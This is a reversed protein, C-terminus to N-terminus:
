PTLRGTQLLVLASFTRAWFNAKQDAPYKFFDISWRHSPDIYLDRLVNAIHKPPWGADILLDRVLRLMNKPQLALPNPSGLVQRVHETARPDCQVRALAEGRPLDKTRDFQQHLEFLASRRYDSVLDILNDNSHPIIGTFQGAHEAARELDWMCDIVADISTEGHATKGDFVTGIVDVLPPHHVMGHKQQNKKHLSFPSRISRMFPSGECWSNDLNICRDISDSITVPLGGNHEPRDFAAITLLSLYEALRGLGAFVRAAPLSIGWRRKIDHPDVHACARIVDPELHHGIQEIAQTAREDIVNHWLFHAGSPTYDLLYPLGRDRLLGELYQLVPVTQRFWHRQADQNTYLEHNQGLLFVEVDLPMLVSRSQRAVVPLHVQMGKDLTFKALQDVPEVAVLFDPSWGDARLEDGAAVVYHFGEFCRQLPQFVRAYYEQPTMPTAM